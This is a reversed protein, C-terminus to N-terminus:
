PSLTHLMLDHTARAACRLHIAVEENSSPPRLIWSIAAWAAQKTHDEMWLCRLQYAMEYATERLSEDDVATQAVQAFPCKNLEAMNMVTQLLEMRLHKLMFDFVYGADEEFCDYVERMKGELYQRAALEAAYERPTTERATYTFGNPDMRYLTPM